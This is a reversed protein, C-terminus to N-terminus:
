VAVYVKCQPGSPQREDRLKLDVPLSHRELMSKIGERLREMNAEPKKDALRGDPFLILALEILEDTAEEVTM